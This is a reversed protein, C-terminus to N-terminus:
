YVRIYLFVVMAIPNSFYFPPICYVVMAMPSSFNFSTYLLCDNGHLSRLLKSSKRIIVRWPSTSMKFLGRSVKGLVVMWLPLRWLSKKSFIRNNLFMQFVTGMLINTLMIKKEIIQFVIIFNLVFKILVMKLVRAQQRLVYLLENCAGYRELTLLHPIIM